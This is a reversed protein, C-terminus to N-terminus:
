GCSPRPPYSEKEPQHPDVRVLVVKTDDLERQVKLLKDANAPDQYEKIAAELIANGTTGDAAATKWTHGALKEFDELVQLRRRQSRQRAIM